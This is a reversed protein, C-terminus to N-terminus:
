CFFSGSSVAREHSTIWISRGSAAQDPYFGPISVLDTAGFRFGMCLAAGLGQRETGSEPTALTREAPHLAANSNTVGSNTLMNVYITQTRGLAIPSRVKKWARNQISATHPFLQIAVGADPLHQRQRRGSCNGGAFFCFPRLAM